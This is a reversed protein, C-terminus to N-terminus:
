PERSMPFFCAIAMKIKYKTYSAKRRTSGSNRNMAIKIFLISDLGVCVSQVVTNLFIAIAQPIGALDNVIVMMMLACSGLGAQGAVGHVELSTQMSFRWVNNGTGLSNYTEFLNLDLGLDALFGDQQRIILNGTAANLYVSEGGQGLGAAGKPGYRGLGLSSGQLGLGEGSIIQTM